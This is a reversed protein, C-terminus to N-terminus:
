AAPETFGGAKQYADMWELFDPEALPRSIGYGQAVDCGARALLRWVLRDEVGEAVVRLGLAHALEVTSRVIVEDPTGERMHRVFAQDIKLEDVPLRKLQALSAQGTGFDDLSVRIGAGRLDGLIRAGGEPDAMVASETVEVHLSGPALGAEGVHRRIRQALRPDALDHASLNVGVKIEYGRTAWAAARTTAHRLVWETLAGISGAQEALAVFLDPRMPGLQPHEWRILAEVGVLEGTAMEIKPQYHMDLADDVIAQGLDSLIAVRRRNDEEHGPEFEALPLREAKATVMAFEARRLLDEASGGDEPARLVGATARIGVRAGGYTLPEELDALFGRVREVGDASGDEPFVVLFEDGGVRSVFGSGALRTQLREAVTRLAADGAPQGLAANVDKLRDIDLLAIRLSAGSQASEEILWDLATPAVTRNPLGTLGDHSAQRRIEQERERIAGQMTRFTEALVGIEDASSVAVETGYDGSSIRKAADALARIPRAFSRASLMSGALAGALSLAFLVLLEARLAEYPAMAESHSTQLVAGAGGNGFRVSLTIWDSGEPRAPVSEAPLGEHSAVWRGLSEREAAPLTSAPLADRAGVFSVELGSLERLALALEDDLAFGMAVWGVRLPAHVPVLVVQHPAGALELVTTTAEGESRGVLHTFVGDASVPPFAATQRGELDLLLTVDSGIRGGHNELVSAITPVDRTAVARKFGFDSALIEVSSLLQRERDALLRDFDRGGRELAEYAHNEASRETAALVLVITVGQSALILGLMWRLLRTRVSAASM